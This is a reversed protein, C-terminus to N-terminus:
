DTVEVIKALALVNFPQRCVSAATDDPFSLNEDLM